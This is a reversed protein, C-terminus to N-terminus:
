GPSPTATRFILVVGSDPPGSIPLWGVVAAVPGIQV